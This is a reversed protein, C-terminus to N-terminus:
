YYNYYGKDSREVSKNLVAGLLNFEALLKAASAVDERPSVGEAVVLLTADLLPAVVLPDDTSLVPPLDFILFADPLRDALDTLFAQGQPSALLDSSRDVSRTSLICHLGQEALTVILQDLSRTRGELYDALSVAQNDGIGFYRSVRPRRLDLDVLVVPQMREAAIALALNIATVTKGEGPRAATVGLRRWGNTRMQRMVRTRLMRYAGEAPQRPDSEVLIRNQRLWSGDTVITPAKSVDIAPLLSAAAAGHGNSAGTVAAARRKRPESAPAESEVVQVSPRRSSEAHKQRSKALEIAREIYSKM